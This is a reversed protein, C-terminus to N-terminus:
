PGRWLNKRCSPCRTMERNTPQGCRPCPISSAPPLSPVPAPRPAQAATPAAVSARTPAPAPGLPTVVVPEGWRRTGYRWALWFVGFWIPELFFCFILVRVWDSVMSQFAAVVVAGILSNAGLFTIFMAAVPHGRRGRWLGWRGTGVRWACWLGAFGLIAGIVLGSVVGGVSGDEAGFLGIMASLGSVVVTVLLIAIVSFVRGARSV